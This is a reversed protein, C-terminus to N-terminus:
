LSIKSPRFIMGPWVGSSIREGRRGRFGRALRQASRVPKYSRRLVARLAALFMPPDEAVMSARESRGDPFIPAPAM